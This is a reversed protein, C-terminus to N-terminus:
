KSTLPTGNLLGWSGGVGQFRNIHRSSGANCHYESHPDGEGTVRTGLRPDNSASPLPLSSSSFFRMSSTHAELGLWSWLSAEPM